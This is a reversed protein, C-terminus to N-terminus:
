QRTVVDKIYAILHNVAESPIEKFEVGIEYRDSRPVEVIWAVKVLAEFSFFINQLTLRIALLSDKAIFEHVYFRIGGQSIDRTLYGGTKTYRVQRYSIL